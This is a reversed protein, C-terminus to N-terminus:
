FVNKRHITVTGTRHDFVLLSYYYVYCMLKASAITANPIIRVSESQGGSVRLGTIKGNQLEAMPEDCFSIIATTKQDILLSNAWHQASLARHLLYNYANEGLSHSVVNNNVVFEWSSLASPTYHEQAGAMTNNRYDLHMFAIQGMETFNLQIPIGATGTGISLSALSSDLYNYVREGSPNTLERLDLSKAQESLHQGDLILYTNTVTLTAIGAVTTSRLVATTGTQFRITM